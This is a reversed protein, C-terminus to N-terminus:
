FNNEYESLSTNLSSQGYNFVRPDLVLNVDFIVKRAANTKSSLVNISKVFDSKAEFVKIQQSLAEMSESEGSLRIENDTKQMNFNSFWVNSITNEEIFAFIRSTIKHNDIITAFDDIKEKYDLVKKNYAQREGAGLNLSKKEIDEIIQYQLVTKFNFVVFGVVSAALLIITFYFLHDLTLIQGETKYAHNFNNM